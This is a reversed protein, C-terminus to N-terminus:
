RTASHTDPVAGHRLLWATAADAPLPASVLYGQLIDAGLATLKARVAPTEVGEAVVQMGLHRALDIVGAVLAADAAQDALEMVFSKDIKLEHFPMHRLRALSSHGTGFDDISIRVGAGVLARLTRETQQQDGVTATETVEIVLRRCPLRHRELTTLVREALRTDPLSRASLNVAVSVDHGDRHWAAAQAVATDLVHDTLRHIAGTQEAVLVFEDPRVRGLRPHEWRALAEFGVVRGDSARIKPQYALTIAGSEIAEPLEAAIQLRRRSSRDRDALYLAVGDDRNKAEYMAVDARQLLVDAETGHAPALVVGISAGVKLTLDDVAFPESVLARLQQAIAAAHGSDAAPLLVTFEDGGLRAVLAGPALHGLERHLRDGLERLLVDGTPHGLTDNIEKFQDLDMLLVAPEGGDRLVQALQSLFLTRNALGTLADHTAQHAKEAVEARLGRVLQANRVAVATHNTAATLLRVDDATFTAVDGTRDHVLLAGIVFEPGILPVAVVDRWDFTALLARQADDRTTAPVVLSGGGLVGLLLPHLLDYDLVEVTLRDGDGTRYVEVGDVSTVLLAAGGASVMDCARDLVLRAVEDVEPRNTLGETFDYLQELHVQRARLRVASRSVLHLVVIVAAFTWLLGPASRLVALVALAVPYGVMLTVALLRIPEAVQVPTDSVLRIVVTVALTTAAGYVAMAAALAAAGRAGTAADDHALWAFTLASLGLAVAQLAVNFLAKHLPVRVIALSVATGVVAGTLVVAPHLTVVGVAAPVIALTVAFTERRAEVHVEALECLVYAAVLAAFAIATPAVAASAPVLAWVGAAAATLTATAAGAVAAGRAPSGTAPMARVM